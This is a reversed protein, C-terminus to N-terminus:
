VHIKQFFQSDPEFPLNLDMGLRKLEALKILLLNENVNLMRSVSSLEMGERLYGLVERDDLLLHAAFANAEYETRSATDFLSNELLLTGQVQNQHLQDHGIEHAFVMTELPGELRSNLYIFRIDLICTYMGLLNEFDERYNVRIGEEHALSMLDRYGKARLANAKEYILSSLIM